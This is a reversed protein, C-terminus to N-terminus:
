PGPTARLEQQVLRGLDRLLGLGAEDLQRPRTDILCLTGIRSGCPLALPFGAYFRIRPENLVVPNDAFRADRLADPVVMVEDRLIAHACFSVERSTERAISGHCSKFAQRDRDILTVLVFPVDFLAAALRTLRDFREEPGSDLIGLRQLAAVRQEEDDPLPPRLWRCRTRMLWARVRARAYVSSFPEVLWDTVGADAGAANDDQAAVVIVPM